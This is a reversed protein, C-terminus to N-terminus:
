LNSGQAKAELATLTTVATQVYASKGDATTALGFQFIVADNGDASREVRWFGPIDLEAYWLPKTVRDDVESSESVVEIVTAIDAPSWFAHDLDAQTERFIAIDAIRMSRSSQKVGIETIAPLGMRELVNALRRAVQSHWATAPSMILLNGEHLEVRYGDTMVRDLDDITWHGAPPNITISM